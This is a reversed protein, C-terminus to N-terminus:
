DQGLLDVLDDLSNVLQPQRHAAEIALTSLRQAIDKLNGILHGQPLRFVVDDFPDVLNQELDNLVFLVRAEGLHLLLGRHQEVVNATGVAHQCVTPANGGLFGHIQDAEQPEANIQPDEAFCRLRESVFQEEAALRSVKLQRM